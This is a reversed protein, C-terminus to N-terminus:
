STEGNIKNRKHEDKNKLLGKSIQFDKIGLSLLSSIIQKRIKCTGIVHYEVNEAFALYDEVFKQIASKIIGCREKPKPGHIRLVSMVSKSRPKSFFVERILLRSYYSEKLARLKNQIKNSPIKENLCLVNMYSHENESIMREIVELQVLDVNSAFVFHTKKVKRNM